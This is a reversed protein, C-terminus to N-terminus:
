CQDELAALRECINFADTTTVHQPHRNAIASHCFSADRLARFWPINPLGTDRLAHVLKLTRFADFWDVLWKQRITPSPSQKAAITLADSAGISALATRLRWRDVFGLTSEARHLVNDSAAHVSTDNIVELATCWTGILDFIKPNYIKYTSGNRIIDNTAQGTGFPVRQSTRAQITLPASSPTRVQGVKALKNLLYFDEGAQRKPVGRVTAYATPTVAICSGITHFAYSSGAHRLGLVYYRLYAEYRAHANDVRHNGSAEHSFRYTLAACSLPVRVNFYDSPLRVDCDTMHILPSNSMGKHLAALAFDCGIKRALGVGHGPPLRYGNKNRDLVVLDFTPTTVHWCPPESGKHLRFASGQARLAHVLTDNRQRVLSDHTDTSNVVIICLARGGQKSVTDLALRYGDLLSISEDQAPIVLVHDAHRQLRTGLQAEPEAYVKLYKAIVDKQFARM